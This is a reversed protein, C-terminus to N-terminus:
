IKYIELDDGVIRFGFDKEVGPLLVGASGIQSAKVTQNPDSGRPSFILVNEKAFRGNGKSDQLVATNYYLNHRAGVTLAHGKKLLAATLDSLSVNLAEKGPGMIKLRSQSPNSMKIELKIKFKDGDDFTIEKEGSMFLANAVDKGRVFLTQGKETTFLLFYKDNSSCSTGGDQCNLAEAGSVHITNASSRFTLGSKLGANLIKSLNVTEVVEGSGKMYMRTKVAPQGGFNKELYANWIEQGAQAEPSAVAQPAPPVPASIVGGSQDLSSLASDGARASACFFALCLFFAASFIKAMNIGEPAAGGSNNAAAIAM